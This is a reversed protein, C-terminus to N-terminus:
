TLDHPLDKQAKWQDYTLYPQGNRWNLAVYAVYEKIHAPTIIHGSPIKCLTTSGRYWRELEGIEWDRLRQLSSM